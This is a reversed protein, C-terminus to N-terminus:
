AALPTPRLKVAAPSPKTRPQAARPQKRAQRRAQRVFDRSGLISRNRLMPELARVADLATLSEAIPGRWAQQAAPLALGDPAQMWSLDLLAPAPATGATARYSSWRWAAPDRVLGALRPALVVYRALPALYSEREVLIAHFRGRFLSGYRRHRRNFQQTYRASLAQMGVSLNPEPTHIVFHYANTMLCYAHFRWGLPTAIEELLAMFARADAADAFIAQSENGRNTVHYVAGPFQIRLPRPM